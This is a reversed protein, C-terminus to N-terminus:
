GLVGKLLLKRKGTLDAEFYVTLYGTKAEVSIPKPIGRGCFAGLLNPRDEPRGSALAPIGDYVYVYDQLKLCPVHVTTFISINLVL